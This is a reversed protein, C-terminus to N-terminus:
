SAAYDLQNKEISCMEWVKMYNNMNDDYSIIISLVHLTTAYQKIGGWVGGGGRGIGKEVGKRIERSFCFLLHTVM